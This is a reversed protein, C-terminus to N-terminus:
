LIKKLIRGDYNINDGLLHAYKHIVKLNKLIDFLIEINCKITTYITAIKLIEFKRLSRGINKYLAKRFKIEKHFEKESLFYKGEFVFCVFFECQNENIYRIELIYDYDFTEPITKYIHFKFLAYYDTVILDTIEYFTCLNLDSRKIIFKSGKEKM